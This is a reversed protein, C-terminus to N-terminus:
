EPLNLRKLIAKFRPESRLDDLEPSIGYNVTGPSRDSIEKELWNLAEEKENLGIYILAFSYGPVYRETSEQKLQDLLKMAEGRVGSRALWLGLYGQAQPDHNLEFSKRTETIAEPYMGKSGYAWGLAQHAYAFNPDLSLVRKYQAIAEDYRRANVLTDGLNTGIIPSLPDLEEARRLEAIAEDFRKASALVDTAFWQHATAYNPDIEIARRYEKEGGVRDLEYQILYAGLTAHPAALSDDLELARQAAAKAQPMSDKTSGVSYATFLAYTEALGSYALAYNPDKEIAQKFFDAAQKLSVTTRKNWSFRGKLYLQYAEPNATYTKALKAEDAGSLRSKLKSSVDRGIERQLTVLDAQRRNYQESWIVNETQADVLELTLLLQDGRQSVRGNLIAQVNLDKGITQPSTQKGKYRFVSSRAKVSLNPLQSLTSILTDTMGDSLYELEANGGENVFPMVAISKIAANSNRGRLYLAIAMIGAVVVVLGIAVALKHQKIGTAVYEASSAKTSLSPTGTTPSLSHSRTGEGELSTTTEGRTPPAVTTDIGAGHLERRLEKLEIAVEKISQYREDPDKALCRRVIRQLDAPASPNLDAIPPAPEYVVMHLSKIVSEGEFPKKGTAAEFLLCGFSFIDSRQDVENTKGQAQEPSM